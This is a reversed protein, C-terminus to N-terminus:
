GNNGGGNMMSGCYPCYPTKDNVDCHCISCSYSFLNSIEYKKWYGHTIEIRDCEKCSTFTGGIKLDDNNVKAM